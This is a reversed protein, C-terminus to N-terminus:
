SNISAIIALDMLFFYNKVLVKRATPHKLIDWFYITLPHYSVKVSTSVKRSTSYFAGVVSALAKRQM